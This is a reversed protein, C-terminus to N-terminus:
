FMNEAVQMSQLSYAAMNNSFIKNCSRMHSEDASLPETMVAMDHNRM